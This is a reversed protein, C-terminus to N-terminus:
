SVNKLFHFLNSYLSVQLGKFITSLTLKCIDVVMSSHDLVGSVLQCCIRCTVQMRENEFGSYIVDM